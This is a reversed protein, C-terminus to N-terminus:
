EGWFSPPASDVVVADTQNELHPSPALDASLRFHHQAQIIEREVQKRSRGYRQRSRAKIKEARAEGGPPIAAPPFTKIVCEVFRKGQILRCKAQFAKLNALENATEAQVDSYLRQKDYIPETQGTSVFIPEKEIITGLREIIEWFAQKAKIQALVREGCFRYELGPYVSPFLSELKQRVIDFDPEFVLPTLQTDWETPWLMKPFGKHLLFTFRFPGRNVVGKRLALLESAPVGRMRNALYFDFSKICTKIEEDESFTFVMDQDEGEDKNSSVPFVTVRLMSKLLDVLEAVQPNLHSGQELESWPSHAMARYAREGVV